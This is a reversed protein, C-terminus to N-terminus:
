SEGSSLDKRREGDNEMGMAMAVEHGSTSLVEEMSLSPIRLSTSSRRTGEHAMGWHHDALTFINRGWVGSFDHHQFGEELPSKSNRATIEEAAQEIVEFNLEDM